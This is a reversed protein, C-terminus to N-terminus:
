ECALRIGAQLTITPTVGRVHVTSILALDLNISSRARKSRRSPSLSAERSLFPDAGTEFERPIFLDQSQSTSVRLGRESVSRRRLRAQWVGMRVYRVSVDQVPGPVSNVVFSERILTSSPDPAILPPLQGM